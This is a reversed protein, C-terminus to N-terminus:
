EIPAEEDATNQYLAKICPVVYSRWPLQKIGFTRLIKDCNLLPAVWQGSMPEDSVVVQEQLRQQPDVGENFQSFVAMVTEVFQYSSGPDSSCYHYVGWPEIGCSLQDVIASIVRALDDTHVPCFQMRNSVALPKKAEIDVLLRTLLNDEVASFLAGTRLIIHRSCHQRAWNEHQVQLRAFESVPQPEEDERHRGSDYGDFIRSSSVMLCPLKSQELLPALRQMGALARQDGYRQLSDLTVAVVVLGIDDAISPPKDSDLGLWDAGALQYRHGRRDFQRALSDSIQGDLAIVLIKM